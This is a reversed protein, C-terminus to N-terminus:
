SANVAAAPLWLTDFVIGLADAAAVTSDEASYDIVSNEGSARSVVGIVPEGASWPKVYGLANTPFGAQGNDGAVAYTLQQGVAYTVGTQYYATRITYGDLCSLGTLKGAAIVNEDTDDQLAIFPVLNASVAGAGKLFEYAASVSNWVASILMGSKILEAAKAPLHLSRKSPKLPDFGRLVTVRPKARV